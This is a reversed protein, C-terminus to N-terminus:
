YTIGSLPQNDAIDINGIDKPDAWVTVGKELIGRLVQRDKEPVNSATIYTESLKWYTFKTMVMLSQPIRIFRGIAYGYRLWYDGIRAINANDILKIRMYIGMEDHALNMTEGGAQSNVSPPVVEAQQVKANIGAITNAYDGRAAWRALDNNTDRALSAQGINSATSRRAAQNNVALSQNNADAQVAAGVQGAIGQLAGAMGGTLAARGGFISAGTAGQAASGFTGIFSQNALNANGIATNATAAQVAIQTQAAQNSIAGTAIDYNAQASGIARQQTWDASQRQYAFQYANNALYLSSGDIVIPISPFSNISVILDIYEGQDDGGQDNGWGGSDINTGSSNYNRPSYITRQNPLAINTREMVMANDNNWNEPRLVIPAGTFTTLEVASYPYTLFKKLVKYREPIWQMVRDRWNPYLEHNISRASYATGSFANYFNPNGDGYEWNTYRYISPIISVSVVGQMIWSKDRFDNIFDNFDGTSGDFIYVAMSTTINGYSQAVPMTINPSDVTGPNAALDISSLVMISYDNNSDNGATPNKMLTNNGRGIVRYDSGIDLGEPITLYDRGYNSFNNYNAIGIHGREVYCNGFTVDYIFTQWEDLQLVLETVDPAIYRADLIFYYFDKQIDSNSIPQVPNSARLYNYRIARNFPVSVRIPINPRVYTLNDISIGAPSLGDIYKNLATRSTFMVTDRYDNNFPVNVLDIQTGATWVSYDFDYGFDPTPNPGSTLQNM